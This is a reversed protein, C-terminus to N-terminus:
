ARLTFVGPLNMGPIPPKVARAGTAIVLKDYPQSFSAGTALNTGHVIKASRDIATVEHRERVDLGRKERAKEVTLVLLDDEDDITGAIWYPMGCASYSITETKEFVIVNADPRERKVKSAASMGAADGGIIVINISM